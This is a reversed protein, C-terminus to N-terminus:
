ISISQQSIPECGRGSLHPSTFFKWFMKVANVLGVDSYSFYILGGLAFISLGYLSAIAVKPIVPGFIAPRIYDVVSAEIGWHCHMVLSVALLYDMAPSPVIFAAPIIGLLGVSLAREATWLKVHDGGDSMERRPAVAVMANTDKALLGAAPYHKFISGNLQGKSWMHSTRISGNMSRPLCRIVLALAM